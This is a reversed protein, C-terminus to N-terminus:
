CIGNIVGIKTLKDGIADRGMRSAAMPVHMPVHYVLVCRWPVPIAMNKSCGMGVSLGGVCGGDCGSTALIISYCPDQTLPVKDFKQLGYRFTQCRESSPFSFGTLSKNSMDIKKFYTNWGVQVPFVGWIDFQWVKINIDKYAYARACTLSSALFFSQCNSMRCLFRLHVCFFWGFGFTQCFRTCLGNLLHM